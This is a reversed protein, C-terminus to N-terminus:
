PKTRNCYSLFRGVDRRPAAPQVKTEGLTQLTLVGTKQFAKLVPAATSVEAQVLTGGSMEDVRAAGRLTATAAGSGLVVSTPWPERVGAKDVWANGDRREGLQRAAPAWVTVQGRAAPPCRLGIQLDESEPAGYVLSATEGKPLNLIWTRGDQALAAGAVLSLLGALAATKM